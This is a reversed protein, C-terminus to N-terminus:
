EYIKVMDCFDGYIKEIIDYAETGYDGHRYMSRLSMKMEWADLLFETANIALLAEQRQEPLDFEVTVKM